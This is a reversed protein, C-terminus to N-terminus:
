TQNLTGTKEAAFQDWCRTLTIMVLAAPFHETTQNTNPQPLIGTKHYVPTNFSFIIM